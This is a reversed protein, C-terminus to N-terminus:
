CEGTLIKYTRQFAPARTLTYAKEYQRSHHPSHHPSAALLPAAGGSAACVLNSAPSSSPWARPWVASERSERVEMAARYRTPKRLAASDYRLAVARAAEKEDSLAHLELVRLLPASPSM